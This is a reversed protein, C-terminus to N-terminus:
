IRFLQWRMKLTFTWVPIGHIIRIHSSDKIDLKKVVKTVVTNYAADAEAM